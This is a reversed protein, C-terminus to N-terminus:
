LQEFKKIGWTHILWYQFIDIILLVVFWVYTYVKMDMFEGFIGIYGIACLAILAMSGFMTILVSASQKVVFTENIWDFKPKWLNIVLGFLAEFVIFAIPILIVMLSELIGVSFVINGVISCLLTPPICLILHFGVKSRLINKTPIPLSRLIWLRNGELSISSATIINMSNTAIVFFCLMPMIYTHLMAKEQAPVNGLLSWIEGQKVLMFGALVVTFAIGLASNLIVMPNSAFHNWERKILSVNLGNARIDKEKLKVKKTGTKSTIISIFNRSLLYIVIAFPVFVSLLYILLSLLNGESIAIGLHYIPFLAKKIANGISEGNQVLSNIYDPLKNIVYFYLAFFGLSLVITIVTKNQMRKLIMAMIWGFICSVALVFLPLTVVILVFCLLSVIAFPRHIFYVVICPLAIIAEYIYNFILLTFIRSLLIDRIKIPMSLLLENDKAGYIEQQTMFISGIFCLMIVSLAMIGFYLWEYGILAFPELISDFLYGFLGGFVVLIYLFLVSMLIIKGIGANKKKSGKLTRMFISQLRVKVLLKLM